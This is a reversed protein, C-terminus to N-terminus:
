PMRRTIMGPKAEMVAAIFEERDQKTAFYMCVPLTEELSYDAHRGVEAIVFAMLDDIPPIAHQGAGTLFQQCRERLTM